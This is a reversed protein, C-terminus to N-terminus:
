AAGPYKSRVQGEGRQLREYKDFECLCNQVDMAELKRDGFVITMEPLLLMLERMHVNFELQTMPRQYDDGLLRRMGRSSGPGVPAWENADLASMAPTHRLDAVVQGALFSGFGDCQMLASHTAEMSDPNRMIYKRALHVQHVAHVAGEIKSPCNFSPVVYAGTFVKYGIFQYARLNSLMRGRDWQRVKKGMFELTLPWNIVRAFCAMALLHDERQVHPYWNNLLWRSVKDDMRRVNCWRHDRLVVDSTWPKPVEAEKARRMNEREDMWYALQKLMTPRFLRSKPMRSM